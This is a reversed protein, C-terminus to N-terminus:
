QKPMGKCFAGMMPHELCGKDNMTLSVTQGSNTILVERGKVQFTGEQTMGWRTLSVKGGGAIVMQDLFASGGVPVYSGSLSGVCASLLLSGVGFSLLRSRRM